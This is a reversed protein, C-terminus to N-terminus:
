RLGLARARQENDRWQQFHVASMQYTLLSAVVSREVWGLTRVLKRHSPCRPVLWHEVVRTSVNNVLSVQLNAFVDMLIQRNGDAYSIAVDNSRGSLTFNPNQESFGNRFFVQSSRWDLHTAEWTIIAPAYTTPDLLVGKAVDAVINPQDRDQASAGAAASLTVTLVAALVRVRIM